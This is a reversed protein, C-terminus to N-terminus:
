ITLQERYTSRVYVGLRKSNLQNQQPGGDIVEDTDILEGDRDRYIDIFQYNSSRAFRGEDNLFGTLLGSGDAGAGIALCASFVNNAAIVYEISSNPPQNVTLSVNRYLNRIPINSDKKLIRALAHVLAVTPNHDPYAQIFWDVERLAHKIMRITLQDNKYYFNIEWTVEIMTPKYKAYKEDFVIKSYFKEVTARDNIASNFYMKEDYAKLSHEIHRAREINLADFADKLQPAVVIVSQDFENKRLFEHLAEMFVAGEDGARDVDEIVLVLPKNMGSLADRLLDELQFIRKLPKSHSVKNLLYTVGFLLLVPVIVPPAYKLYVKWFGTVGHLLYSLIISILLALPILTIICKVNPKDGDIDDAIQVEKKDGLEAALKIVFADWLENRNAYRWTEFTVWKVRPLKKKVARLITSKGVGYGGLYAIIVSKNNQIATNLRGKVRDIESKYGLLDEDSPSEDLVRSDSFISGM